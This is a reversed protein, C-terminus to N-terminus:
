LMLSLGGQAGGVIDSGFSRVHGGLRLHLPEVLPIVFGTELGVDVGQAGVMLTPRLELSFQRLGDRYLVYRHPVGVEFGIRTTDGYSMARFGAAINPEIHNKPGIRVMAHTSWGNIATQSLQFDFDFGFYSYGFTLRGLGGGGWGSAGSDAGGLLEFGLSPCHFRQEVVAPADSDVAYVIIPLIAVAVVALVLLAKGIDGGGSGSSTGGGSSSSGNTPADSPLTTVPQASHFSSLPASSGQVRYYGGTPIPIWVQGPVAFCRQFYTPQEPPLPPNAIAPPVLPAAEVESGPAPVPQASAVLSFALLLTFTTRMPSPLM